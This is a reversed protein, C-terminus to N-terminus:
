SAPRVSLRDILHSFRRKFIDRDFGAAHTHLRKGDYRHLDSEHQRVAELLSTATQERFLIGTMGDVVTELAGGKGYAIVPRGCAMAELPVIGFDEVGPFVLARCSRYASVLENGQMAGLFRIHPGAMRKLRALEPGDGVIWLPRGLQNFAEIALDFRKYRVLQGVTLYHDGREGGPSFRSLDVPAHIVEAERRYYKRIRAAVFSSNAVFHDVRAASAQDWLRLYHAMPYALLRTWPKLREFYEGQMDWLYRMPSHCYCVHLSNPATIVGKAPGSESSIVLDYGTLDLAELALPMLPLYAPYWRKARPLRGIFSERITHARLTESIRDPDCVHTYIDAQPYLESLAELVREGGRMGVLWYHVLAVKM